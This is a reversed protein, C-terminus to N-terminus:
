SMKKGDDAGNKARYYSEREDRTRGDAAIFVGDTGRVKM